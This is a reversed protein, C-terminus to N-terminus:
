EVLASEVDKEAAGLRVLVTHTARAFALGGLQDNVEAATAVPEANSTQAAELLGGVRAWVRGMRWCLMWVCGIAVLSGLGIAVLSAQLMSHLISITKRVVVSRDYGLVVAGVTQGFTNEITDG